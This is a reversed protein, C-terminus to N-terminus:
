QRGTLKQVQSYLGACALGYVISALLWAAWGGFIPHAQLQILGLVVGCTGISALGAWASPLGLMKLLQVFAPVLVVIPVGLVLLDAVM